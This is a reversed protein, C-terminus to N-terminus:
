RALPDGIAGRFAPMAFDDVAPGDNGIPEVVTGARSPSRLYPDGIDVPRTWHVEKACAIALPAAFTAGDLPTPQISVPVSCKRRLFAQYWDATFSAPFGSQVHSSPASQCSSSRRM